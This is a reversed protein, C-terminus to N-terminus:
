CTQPCLDNKSAKYNLIHAIIVWVGEFGCVCVVCVGMRGSAQCPIDVNKDLDAFIKSKPQVTLLPPEASLFPIVFCFLNYM